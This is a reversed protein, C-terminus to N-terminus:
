HYASGELQYDSLSQPSFGDPIYFKKERKVYIVSKSMMVEAEASYHEPETPDGEWNQALFVDHGIEHNNVWWIYRKLMEDGTRPTPESNDTCLNWDTDACELTTEEWCNKCCTDCLSKAINLTYVISSDLDNPTGIQATYGFPVNATATNNETVTVAHQGDKVERPRPVTNTDQRAPHVTVGLRGSIGSFFDNLESESSPSPFRSTGSTPPIIIVFLDPSNKDVCKVRNPPQAPCVGIFRSNGSHILLEMDNEMHIGDVGEVQDNFGDKDSDVEVAFVPGVTLVIFLVAWVIMKLGESKM